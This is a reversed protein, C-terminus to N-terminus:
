LMLSLLPISFISFLTSLFIGQAMLRDDKGYRICFMIGNAAVPMGSLVAAVNTVYPDFGMLRFLGLVLLPLLLLRIASMTYVFRNGMMDRVPIRSLSSGIILLACPITMDGLLHCFEGVEAPTEVKFLALVAALVAAVVCPSLLMRPRFAAKINGTGAIFEVGVTFILLNFPITLVAGYFIAREDFISLLVPFGIFTVNGFSIMFRLLGRRFTDLRWVFTFFYAAGLLVLYNLVSVLLLQGIEAPEFTLGDGMVSSLILLPATVNLVFVSMYKNLEAAWLGRKAAFYGVMVVGFIIIMRGVIHAYDMIIFSYSHFGFTLVGGGSSPLPFSFPFPLPRLFPPSPSLLPRFFSPLPSASPIPKAGLACLLYGEDGTSRRAGM